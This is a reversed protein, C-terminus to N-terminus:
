GLRSPLVCDSNVTTYFQLCRSEHDVRSDVAALQELQSLYLSVWWYVPLTARLSHGKLPQSIILRSMQFSTVLIGWDDFAKRWGPYKVKPPFLFFYHTSAGFLFLSSCLSETTGM